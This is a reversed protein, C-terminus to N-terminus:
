SRPRPKAFIDKDRGIADVPCLFKISDRTGLSIITPARFEGHTVKLFNSKLLLNFNNTFIEAASIKKGYEDVKNEEKDALVARSQLGVVDRALELEEGNLIRAILEATLSCDLPVHDKDVVVHPIAGETMKPYLGGNEGLSEVDDGVM